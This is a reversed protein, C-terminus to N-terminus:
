KVYGKERLIAEVADDDDLVEDPLNLSRIIKRWKKWGAIVESASMQSEGIPKQSENSKKKSM